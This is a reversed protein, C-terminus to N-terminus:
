CIKHSNIESPDRYACHDIENGHNDRLIAKDGDNNWVYASRGWFRDTQTGRGKGTHIKVFGHAKITFTAFKFIHGARDRV